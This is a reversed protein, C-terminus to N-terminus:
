GATPSQAAMIAEGLDNWFQTTVSVYRVFDDLTVHVGSGALPTDVSGVPKGLRPNGRFTAPVLIEPIIKRLGEASPGHGHKIANALCHLEYLDPWSPLSKLVAGGDAFREHVVRWTLLSVDREEAPRLVQRRFFLLLQQEVLHFLAATALNLIAQRVHTLEEHKAIGAEQAQEALDALDESGDGPLQGLRVFEATAFTDAEEELGEFAPLM